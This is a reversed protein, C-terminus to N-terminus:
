FKLKSIQIVIIGGFMFFKNTINFLIAKTFQHLKYLIKFLNKSLDYLKYYRLLNM